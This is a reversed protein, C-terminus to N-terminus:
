CFVRLFNDLITILSIKYCFCCKRVRFTENKYMITFFTRRNYHNCMRWDFNLCDTLHKTCTILISELSYFIVILISSNFSARIFDSLLAQTMVTRRSIEYKVLKLVCPLCHVSSVDFNSMIKLLRFNCQKKIKLFIVGNPIIM